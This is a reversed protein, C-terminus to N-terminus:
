IRKHFCKINCSLPPLKHHYRKGAIKDTAKVECPKNGFEFLAIDGFDAATVGACHIHATLETQFDSKDSVLTLCYRMTSKIEM